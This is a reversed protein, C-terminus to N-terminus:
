SRGLRRVRGVFNRAPRIAKGVRSGVRWTLTGLLMTIYAELSAIREERITIARVSQITNEDIERAMRALDQEIPAGHEVAARVRLKRQRDQSRPWEHWSSTFNDVEIERIPHRASDIALGISLQDRRSYRLVNDLWREMTKDVAVTHRRALVGTWHARMQLVHPAFSTYHMLQEYVRVPDDIKMSGVAEFEDAVTDRYSHLPLSFDASHLWESLIKEPEATLLVSNDIWLTRDFPGLDEHGRIKLVRASRVSDEPFAPTVLRVEWTDSVLTPDDTFCIFPLDSSLAVPQELLTEYGGMLATYVASQGSAMTVM